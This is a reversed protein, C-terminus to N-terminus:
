WHLSLSADGCLSEDWGIAPSIMERWQSYVSGLVLKSEM